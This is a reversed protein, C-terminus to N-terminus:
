YHTAVISLCDTRRTAYRSAHVVGAAASSSLLASRFLIREFADQDGM